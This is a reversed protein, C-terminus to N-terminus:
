ELGFAEIVTRAAETQADSNRGQQKLEVVSKGREIAQQLRPSPSLVSKLSQTKEFESAGEFLKKYSETKAAEALTTGKASAIASLIEKNAAHGPNDRFFLENELEARTLYGKAKILEDDPETKRGVYSFTDKLAKLATEKDAFNKGLHSNIESLSMSDSPVAPAGQNGIVAGEGGQEPLTGPTINEPNM